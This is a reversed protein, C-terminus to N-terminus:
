AHQSRPIRVITQTGGGPRQRLEIRQQDGYLLRLRERTNGLGIGDSPPEASAGDPQGTVRGAVEHGGRHLRVVVKSM